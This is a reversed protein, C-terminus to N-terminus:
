QEDQEEADYDLPQRWADDCTCEDLRLKCEPCWGSRRVEENTLCVGDQLHRDGKTPLYAQQVAPEGWFALEEKSRWMGALQYKDKMSHVIKSQTSSDIKPWIIEGKKSRKLAM